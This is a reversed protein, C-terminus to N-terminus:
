IEDLSLDNPKPTQWFGREWRKRWSEDNAIAKSSIQPRATQSANAKDDPVSDSFDDLSLNFKDSKPTNRIQIPTSQPSNRWPSKPWREGTSKDNSTANSSIQSQIAQSANTKDDPVSDPVEDTPGWEFESKKKKECEFEGVLELISPNYVVVNFSPDGAAPMHFHAWFDIKNYFKYGWEEDKFTPREKLGLLEDVGLSQLQEWTYIEKSTVYNYMPHNEPLDTVLGRSGPKIKAFVFYDGYNSYDWCKAKAFDVPDKWPPVITFYLGPGYIQNGDKWGTKLYTDITKRHTDQLQFGVKKISNYGAESVMKILVLQDSRKMDFMNEMFDKFNMDVHKQTNKTIQSKSPASM